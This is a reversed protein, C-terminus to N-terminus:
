PDGNLSKNAPHSVKSEESLRQVKPQRAGAAELIKLTELLAAFRAQGSTADCDLDVGLPNPRAPQSSGRTGASFRVAAPTRPCTHCGTCSSLEAAGRPEALAITAFLM